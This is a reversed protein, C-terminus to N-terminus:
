PSGRMADRRHALHLQQHLRTQGRELRDPRGREIRGIRQPHATLDTTQRHAARRVENQDLPIRAREDAPEILRLRHNAVTAPQAPIVQVGQLGGAALGRLDPGPPIQPPM